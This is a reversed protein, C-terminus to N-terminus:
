FPANVKGKSKRPRGFALVLLDDVMGLWRKRGRRAVRAVQQFLAPM